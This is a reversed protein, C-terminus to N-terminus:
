KGEFNMQPHDQGNEAQRANAYIAASPGKKPIVVKIQGAKRMRALAVSIPADNKLRSAFPASKKQIFERAERLTFNGTMQRIFHVVGDKLLMQDTADEPESPRGGNQNNRRVFELMEVLLEREKRYREDLGALEKRVEYETIV